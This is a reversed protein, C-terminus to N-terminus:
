DPKDGVFDVKSALNVKETPVGRIVIRGGFGEDLYPMLVNRYMEIELVQAAGIGPLVLWDDIELRGEFVRGTVKASGGM